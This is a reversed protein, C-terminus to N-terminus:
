IKALSGFINGIRQMISQAMSTHLITYVIIGSLTREKPYWQGIQSDMISIVAKRRQDAHHIARILIM